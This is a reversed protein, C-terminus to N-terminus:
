PTGRVRISIDDLYLNYITWGSSYRDDSITFTIFQGNPSLGGADCIRLKSYKRTNDATADSITIATSPTPNQSTVYTISLTYSDTGKRDLLLRKFKKFVNYGFNFNKTTLSSQFPISNDQSVGDDDERGILTDNTGSILYYANQITPSFSGDFNNLNIASIYRAFTYFSNEGNDKLDSHFLNLVIVLNNYPNGDVPVSFWIENTSPKWEACATLTAADFNITRFLAPIKGESLNHIQNGYYCM